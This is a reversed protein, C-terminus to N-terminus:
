LKVAVAYVENKPLNYKSSVIKVAEKKSVGSNILNLLEQEVDVDEKEEELPPRRSLFGYSPFSEPSM